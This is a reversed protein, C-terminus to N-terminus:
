VLALDGSVFRKWTKLAVKFDSQADKVAKKDVEEKETKLALLRLQREQVTKRLSELREEFGPALSESKVELKNRLRKEDMIMKKRLIQEDSITKLDSALGLYSFINILWKTPDYDHWRIGNRYDAQFEHHYNHYGEGFTFLAIFWNDKATHKDSYPQAGKYHALSNIFFTFHHNIAVRLTGVVILGGLWDGWLGCVLMPLIFNMFIAVTYYHDHQFKVWKDEWLDTVNTPERYSRDKFLWLIHAHWFGKTISYPDEDKDVYRHHIRHDSSWEIVSQQFAAAGFFIYFLRVPLAAKYARHSFLRHYGATISLGTAVLMFAFALWTYTPIGRTLLLAATGFVGIIPTAILFITTKLAIKKTQEM